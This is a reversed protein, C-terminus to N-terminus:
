GRVAARKRRWACGALAVGGLALLTLSTPEPVVGVNGPTLLFSRGDSSGAIIQGADNIGDASTLTFPSGPPLLSNLDIMRGGTYLFPDMTGKGTRSIGVVQGLDNVATAYSVIDVGDQAHAQRLANAATAYSSDGGLAGLNHMKGGSYLFAHVAGSLDSWGVVQGAANIGTAGSNRGGLTGLDHMTGGSYLFAHTEVLGRGALDAQGVVQGAANVATASSYAGGFTGLDTMKGGSYLFAHFANSGALDSMGVVAGTPSIGNAFSSNGGLTGLDRMTGGSYLFAHAATSPLQAYGAVQGADNVATATSYWGGFTGLDKVQGGSALFAHAPGGPLYSTGVVQGSANIGYAATRGGLGGLDTVLYDAPCRAPACLLLAAALAAVTRKM